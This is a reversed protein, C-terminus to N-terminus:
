SESAKLGFILGHSYVVFQSKRLCHHFESRNPKIETTWRVHCAFMQFLSIDTYVQISEALSLSVVLANIMQKDLINHEKEQHDKTKCSSKEARATGPGSEVCDQVFAFSRKDCIDKKRQRWSERGCRLFAQQIIVGNENGNYDPSSQCAQNDSYHNGVYNASPSAIGAVLGQLGQTATGRQSQNHYLFGLSGLPFSVGLIWPERKMLTHLHGWFLAQGLIYRKLYPSTLTCQFLSMAFSAKFNTKWVNPRLRSM